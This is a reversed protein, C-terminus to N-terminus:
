LMVLKCCKNEICVELCKDDIINNNCAPFHTECLLDRFERYFHQIGLILANM